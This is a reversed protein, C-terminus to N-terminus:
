SYHARTNSQWHFEKKMILGIKRIKQVNKIKQHKQFHWKKRYNEHIKKLWNKKKKEGVNKICKKLSRIKKTNKFIGNKLIKMVNKLWNKM